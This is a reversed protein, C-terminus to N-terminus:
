FFFIGCAVILSGIHLLLSWFHQSGCSLGPAALYIFVLFLITKKGKSIFRTKMIFDPWTPGGLTGLKWQPHWHTSIFYAFGLTQVRCWFQLWQAQVHTSSPSASPAGRGGGGHGGASRPHPTLLLCDQGKTPKAVQDSQFSWFYM